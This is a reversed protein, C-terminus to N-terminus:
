EELAVAMEEDGVADDVELGIGAEEIFVGLGDDPGIAQFHKSRTDVNVIGGKDNRAVGSASDLFRKLILIGDEFYLGELLMFPLPEGIRLVKIRGVPALGFTGAPCEAM